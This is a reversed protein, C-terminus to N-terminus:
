ERIFKLLYKTASDSDSIPPSLYFTERIINVREEQHSIVSDLTTSVVRLSDYQTQYLRVRNELSDVIRKNEKLIENADRKDQIITIAFTIIIAAFITYLIRHLSDTSMNNGRYHQFWKQKAEVLQAM